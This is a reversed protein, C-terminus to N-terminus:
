ETNLFDEISIVYDQLIDIFKDIDEQIVKTDSMSTGAKKEILQSIDALHYADVYKSVSKITHAIRKVTTIDEQKWAIEMLEDQGYLADLFDRLLEVDDTKFTFVMAEKEASVTDDEDFEEDYEEDEKKEQLEFYKILINWLQKENIPKEIYDNFYNKGVDNQYGSVVDATVMIIPMQHMNERIRRTAEIGDLEPMHVDMLIADYNVKNTCAISEIGNNAIDYTLGIRDLYRSLVKQNMKNDEAILVHGSFYPDPKDWIESSKSLTENQELERTEFNLEFSFKTGIDKVSEVLLLGGMKEVINKALPLGLGTGGYMRTTGTDAQSFEEFVTTLQDPTMGIGTDQVRFKLRITDKNRKEAAVMLSVEGKNTFKIANSLLNNLVIRLQTPDGILIGKVDLEKWIKFEINKEQAKPSMAVRVYEIVSDISFPINELQLAGAQIKSIDLIKNVIDLLGDASLKVNQLAEEREKDSIRPQSAINIFGVVGNLPSRIEHSMTALFATKAAAEQQLQHSDRYFQNVKTTIEMLNEFLVTALSTFEEVPYNTKYSAISGEYIDSNSLIEAINNELDAFMPLFKKDIYSKVSRLTTRFIYVFFLVSSLTIAHIPNLLLAVILRESRYIGNYSVSIYEIGPSSLSVGQLPIDIIVTVGDGVSGFTRLYTVGRYMFIDSRNEIHIPANGTYAILEGRGDVMFISTASPNTAALIVLSNATIAVTDAIENLREWDLRVERTLSLHTTLFAVGFSMLFLILTLFLILPLSKRKMVNVLRVSM